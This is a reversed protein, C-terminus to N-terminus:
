FWLQSWKGTTLKSYSGNVHSIQNVKISPKEKFKRYLACTFAKTQLNELREQRVKEDVMVAQHQLDFM